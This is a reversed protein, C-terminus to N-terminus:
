TFFLYIRKDLHHDLMTGPKLPWQNVTYLGDEKTHWKLGYASQNQDVGGSKGGAISRGLAENRPLNTEENEEWRQANGRM